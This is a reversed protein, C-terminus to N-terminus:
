KHNNPTEVISVWFKPTWKSVFSFSNALHNPRFRRVVSTQSNQPADRHKTGLKLWYVNKSVVTWGHGVM